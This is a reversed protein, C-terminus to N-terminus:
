YVQGSYRYIGKLLGLRTKLRSINVELSVHFSQPLIGPIIRFSIGYGYTRKGLISIQSPGAHESLEKM